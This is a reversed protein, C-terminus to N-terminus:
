RCIIGNDGVTKREAQGLAKNTTPMDAASHYRFWPMFLSVLLAIGAFPIGIAFTFRLAIAYSQVIGGLSASPLSSIAESNAGAGLVVIPNIEPAFQELAKILQNQFVAQATPLLSASGMSQAVEPSTLVDLCPSTPPFCLYHHSHSDVRGKDRGCSAIVHTSHHPLLWGGCWARDSIWDM